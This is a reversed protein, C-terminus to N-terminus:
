YVEIVTIVLLVAAYFGIVIYGVFRPFKYDLLPIAVGFVILSLTSIAIVLFVMFGQKDSTLKGWEFIHFTWSPNKFGRTLCSLGFGILLNFMQGCFIGTIAMVDFGKRALMYDVFMDVFSNGVGLLVMGLYIDSADTWLQIFSIIDCAVGIIFDLWVLGGLTTLMIFLLRPTPKYLNQSKWFVVAYLGASIALGILWYPVGFLEDFLAQKITLVFFVSTLPYIYQQKKFLLPSDVPPLTLKIIFHFIAEIFFLPKSIFNRGKWVDHIQFAVRRMIKVYNPANSPLSTIADSWEKNDFDISPRRPRRKISDIEKELMSKRVMEGKNPRDTPSIDDDEVGAIQYMDHNKLRNSLTALKKARDLKDEYHVFAVYVMYILM